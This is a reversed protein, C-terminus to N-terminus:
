ISEALTNLMWTWGDKHQRGMADDPVGSHCLTVDTEDGRPEFTIAVVSEFGQTAESVWTYEVYRPSEIRVFRGYHHWIRGQHKLGLYFLGDVVANVIAREAGSWPGGPSKPDMWVAFVKEPPAPIARNVTIQTFEMM